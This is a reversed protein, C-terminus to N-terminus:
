KRAALATVRKEITAIVEPDCDMYLHNVSKEIKEQYGLDGGPDSAEGAGGIGTIHSLLDSNHFLLSAKPNKLKYNYCDRSPDIAICDDVQPFREQIYGVDGVGESYGILCVRHHNNLFWQVTTMATNLAGTGPWVDARVVGKVQRLSAGLWQMGPSTIFGGQGEFLQVALGM